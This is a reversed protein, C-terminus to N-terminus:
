QGPEGPPPAPPNGRDPPPPPRRDGHPPPPPPMRGPRGGHNEGEGILRANERVAAQLQQVAADPQGAKVYLDKLAFHIVTRVPVSQEQELLSQLAKIGVDPNDKSADAIGMVGLITVQLPNTVTHELDRSLRFIENMKQEVQGPPPGPPPGPPHHDYEPSPQVRYSPATQSVQPSAQAPATRAASGGAGMGPAVGPEVPVAPAVGAPAVVAASPQTAPAIGTTFQVPWHTRGEAAAMGPASEAVVQAQRALQRFLERNPGPDHGLVRLQEQLWVLREQWSISSPQGFAPLPPGLQGATVPVGESTGTEAPARSAALSVFLTPVVMYRVTNSFGM